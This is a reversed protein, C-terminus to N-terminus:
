SAFHPSYYLGLISTYLFPLMLMSVGSASRGVVVRWDEWGIEMPLTDVNDMSRSMPKSALQRKRAGKLLCHIRYGEEKGEMEGLEFKARLSRGVQFALKQTVVRGKGILKRIWGSFVRRVSKRRLSGLPLLMDTTRMRQLNETTNLRRAMNKVIMSVHTDRQRKQSRNRSPMALM